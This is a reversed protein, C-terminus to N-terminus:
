DTGSAAVLISSRHNSTSLWDDLSESHGIPRSQLAIQADLEIPMARPQEELELMTSFGIIISMRWIHVRPCISVGATAENM